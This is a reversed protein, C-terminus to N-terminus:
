KKIILKSSNNIDAGKINLVYTGDRLFRLDLVCRGNNLYAYGSYVTRGDTDFVAVSIQVDSLSSGMDLQVIGESPNPIINFSYKTKIENLSVENVVKVSDIGSTVTACNGSRVTARYYYTGLESQIDTLYVSDSSNEIMQWDLGASQREWYLIDGVYARLELRMPQGKEVSDTLRFVNGGRSAPNVLVTVTNSTDVSVYSTVIRRYYTTQFLQRPEYSPNNNLSGEDCPEWSINDSSQIWLYTFEGNGGTPQTGILQEPIAGSCLEQDKSIVNNEIPIYPTTIEKEEGYSVGYKNIAYTRIYYKVLPQLNNVTCVFPGEGSGAKVTNDNIDPNNKESSYCVGRQSVDDMGKSIVNGEVIIQNYASAYATDTEVTPVQKSSNVILSTLIVDYDKLRINEFAIYSEANQHGQTPIVVNVTNEESIKESSILEWSGNIGNRYYLNIEGTGDTSEANYSYNVVISDRYEFDFIPLVLKEEEQIFCLTDDVSSLDPIYPYDKVAPCRTVFTKEEGYATLGENQAYARVYYLTSSKLDSTKLTYEGLFNNDAIINIIANDTIVPAPNESIIFGETKLETYGSNIVNGKFEAAKDTINFVETTAVKPWSLSSTDTIKVDDLAIGYGGAVTSEFAIFLTKAKTELAITEEMWNEVAVDFTKLLIWNESLSTRYYVNLKDTKNNKMKQIHWFSLVPYDLVTTNLPPTVLKVTQAVDSNNYIYAYRNGTKAKVGTQAYVSDTFKWNNAIYRTYEQSWCDTENEEFSVTYPFDSVSYCPTKVSIVEGYAIRNNGKIKVFPRVYYDTNKGLADSNCSIATVNSADSLKSDNVTPINYESSYVFGKEEIDTLSINETNANLLITDDKFKVTFDKIIVHNPDDGCYFTINGTKTNETINNISKSLSVGSKSKSNPTSSDTLSHNALTGPFPHGSASYSTYRDNAPIIQYGPNDARCNICNNNWGNVNKDVRFVLMGHGPLYSDWGTQQRNEFILYEKNTNPYFSIYAQNTYQLDGITVDTENELTDLQIYNRETREMASWLPPFKGGGNYNGSAMLDWADPHFASGGTGYDTDYYDPQGLVHSFEHCITGITLDSPYNISGNFESSCGYDYVYVGDVYMPNVLRSRHPWITYSPNGSSSEPVGAYLVYVCSVYDNPAGNTFESFDVDDNAKNVAEQILDRVHLDNVTYEQGNNDVGTYSEGYYTIPHNAVYPGIVKATLNLKGSSSADFYDHVSGPHGNTSYGVQNFLNDIEERPTTFAYDSFSMLIVVMKYDEKTGDGVFAQSNMYGTRYAFDRNIEFYQKMISIQEASYFLNTDLSSVFEKEAQNRVQPDHALVKSRKIGGKGDTVAYVYGENGDKLLTYGDTTKAWSVREDGKMLVTLEKGDSQKMKVPQPDAVTALTVNINVIATLILVSLIKKM